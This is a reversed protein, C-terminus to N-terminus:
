AGANCRPAGQRVGSRASLGTGLLQDYVELTAGKMGALSFNRLVHARARGGIASREDATLALALGLQRVLAPADGPPVLWGTFEGPGVYPEARVTEPPAGIATAIVPCGMAEAEAAARGFAEPETSAVVAVHSALFAAPIDEVHGVLRVRDGLGLAAIQLELGQVYGTRGQADGALIVVTKALADRRNLEAAAAILVSQGKWGTLRAAHLM